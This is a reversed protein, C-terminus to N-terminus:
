TSDAPAEPPWNKMQEKVADPATAFPDNEILDMLEEFTMDEKLQLHFYYAGTFIDLCRGYLKAHRANFELSLMFGADNFHDIELSCYETPETFHATPLLRARTTEGGHTYDAEIMRTVPEDGKGRKLNTVGPIESLIQMVVDPDYMRGEIDALHIPDGM